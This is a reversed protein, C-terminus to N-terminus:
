SSGGGFRLNHRSTYVIGCFRMLKVVSTRTYKSKALPTEAEGIPTVSLERLSPRIYIGPKKYGIAM